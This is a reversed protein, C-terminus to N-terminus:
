EVYLIGDSEEGNEKTGWDFWLKPPTYFVTIITTNECQCCETVIDGNGEESKYISFTDHGCHGCRFKQKAKM